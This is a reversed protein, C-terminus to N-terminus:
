RGRSHLVGNAEFCRRVRAAYDAFAPMERVDLSRPHPLEIRLELDIRGPRPTMVLVRDALFVAESISHTIFLVTKRKKLWIDAFDLAVQERTLADLAAFPEDMLVLPPDLLLARCIAVRQRMGGSLERPLYEEFGALGVLALLERAAE